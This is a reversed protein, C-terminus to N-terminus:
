YTISFHYTTAAPNVSFLSSRNEFRIEVANLSASMRAWGIFFDSPISASGAPSASVAGQLAPVPIFPLPVSVTVGGGGSINPVDVSASFYLTGHWATGDFHEVTNFTTNYRITGVAPAAPRFSTQGSPIIMGDTGGVELIAHPKNGVLISSGILTSDGLLNLGAGARIAFNKGPPAMRIDGLYLGYANGTVAYQSALTDVIVQDMAVQMGVLNAVKYNRGSFKLVNVMSGRLTGINSKASDTILIDTYHGTLSAVYGKGTHAVTSEHGRLLQVTDNGAHLTYSEGATLRNLRRGTKQNSIALASFGYYERGAVTAEDAEAISLLNSYPGTATEARRSATSKFYYKGLLSTIPKQVGDYDGYGLDDAFLFKRANYDYFISDGAAYGRRLFVRKAATDTKWHLSDLVGDALVNGQWVLQRWSASPADYSELGRTDVNYIMLGNAPNAIGARQASTLRPLLLGKGDSSLELVATTDAPVAPNGGIKVQSFVPQLLLLLCTCAILQKM